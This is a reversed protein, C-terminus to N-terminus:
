RLKKIGRKKKAVLLQVLRSPSIFLSSEVCLDDEIHVVQLLKACIESCFYSNKGKININLIQWFLIGVWNYRNEQLQICRQIIKREMEENIEKLEVVDWNKPNLNIRKFRLGKDQESSSFCVVGKGSLNPIYEWYEKIINECFSLEIHSYQSYKGYGLLRQKLTILKWFISKSNKYLLLNM